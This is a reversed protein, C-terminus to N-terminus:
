ASPPPYRAVLPTDVALRGVKTAGGPSGFAETQGPLPKEFFHTNDAIFASWEPPVDDEYFIADVPCVPECAGCDVCEDPHIYLARDGEYICDVPCEEVCARDLVDICPEAIVYAM